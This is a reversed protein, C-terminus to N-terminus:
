RANVNLNRERLDTVNEIRGRKLQAKRITLNEVCVNQVPLKEDGLIRFPSDAKDITINRVYIDRIETVKEEYTPVLNRWQYLVDTEIGFASEKVGDATINEV